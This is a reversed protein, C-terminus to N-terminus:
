RRDGGAIRFEVLESAVWRDFGVRAEVKWLYPQGATLRVSDPLVAAPEDGETEYLVVADADYLTVRYRDAGDVPVWELARAGIVTGLPAMPAPAAGATITPARHLPEPEETLRPWSLLLLVAAAAATPVVLRTWRRRGTEVVRVERAVKPSGLARAVSAVATRCQPCEAVHRLASARGATGLDGGALGAIIADDLCSPGAVSVEGSGWLALRLLEEERPKM